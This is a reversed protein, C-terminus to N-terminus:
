KELYSALCRLKILAAGIEAPVRGHANGNHLFAEDVIKVVSPLLYSKILTGLPLTLEPHLLLSQVQEMTIVPNGQSLLYLNALWKLPSVLCRGADM